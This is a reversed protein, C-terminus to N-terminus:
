HRNKYVTGTFASKPETMTGQAAYAATKGLSDKYPHSPTKSPRRFLDGGAFGAKIKGWASRVDLLPIAM